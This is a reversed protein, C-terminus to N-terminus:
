HNFILALLSLYDFGSFLCDLIDYSFCSSAMTLILQVRSISASAADWIKVLGDASQLPLPPIV